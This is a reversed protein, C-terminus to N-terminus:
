VHTARQRMQTDGQYHHEYRTRSPATVVSDGNRHAISKHEVLQMLLAIQIVLGTDGLRVRDGVTPGHIAAYDDPLIEDPHTHSHPVGGHEHSHEFQGHTHKSV